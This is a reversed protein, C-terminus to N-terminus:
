QNETFNSNELFAEMLELCYFLVNLQFKCYM